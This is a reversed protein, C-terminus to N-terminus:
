TMIEHNTVKLGVNAEASVPHLRNPIREREKEGQGEGSMNERNREKEFYIFWNFFTDIYLSFGPFDNSM